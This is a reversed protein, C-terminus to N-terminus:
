RIEATASSKMKVVRVPGDNVKAFEKKAKVTWKKFDAKSVVNVAIPM